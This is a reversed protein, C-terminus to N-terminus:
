VPDVTASLIAAQLSEVRLSQEYQLLALRARFADITAMKRIVESPMTPDEAKTEADANAVKALWKRSHTEPDAGGDPDHPSGFRAHVFARMLSIRSQGTSEAALYNLMVQNLSENALSLMAVRRLDDARQQNTLATGGLESSLVDQPVPSVLLAIQRQAADIHKDRLIGSAGGTLLLQTDLCDGEEECKEVIARTMRGAHQRQEAPTKDFMKNNREVFVARAGQASVTLTEADTKGLATSITDNRCADDDAAAREEVEKRNEYYKMEAERGIMNRFGNNMVDAENAALDAQLRRELEM